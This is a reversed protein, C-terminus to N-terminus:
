RFLGLASQLQVDNEPLLQDSYLLMLDNEGMESLIDPTVGVDILSLGNPTFYKGISINIASGDSLPFQTQYHGKGTSQHGVVTAVDYEQLAAAFFEAASYSHENLLVVMPLDLFSADSQDITEEGNYAITRFIEGEPLIYDLIKVLEDQRGGPNMRVDFVIAKAGDSKAMEIAEITKDGSNADFNMIKIIGISDQTLTYRVVETDIMSRTVDVTHAEDDRLLELEVVTGEAGKVRTVVEAQTIGTVDEGDVKVLIDGM